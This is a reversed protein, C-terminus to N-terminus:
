HFSNMVRDHKIASSQEIMEASVVVLHRFKNAKTREVLIQRDYHVAVFGIGVGRDIGGFPSQRVFELFASTNCPNGFSSLDFIIYIVLSKLAGYLLSMRLRIHLRARSSCVVM